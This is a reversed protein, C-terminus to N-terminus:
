ARHRGIVVITIDDAPPVGGRFDAVADRLAAVIDHASGRRATEITALLRPEGFREGSPGVADTVGDTYLVLSDGPRLRVNLEPAGLSRFAGLLVGGGEVADIPGDDGPVILPPEHGANALRLRGTTVDLVGAIATIFLGSRIEDVLIRNTRELAEAPGPSAELAAHIVPRAFAMLMGAGIGKGTVDAIVIGVPRRRRQVQFLEFFDGGIERAAEYHSALDYGPVVPGRLSVFSRQALRAQALESALSRYDAEALEGLGAALADLASVITPDDIAPGSAVVRGVLGGACHIDLVLRDNPAVGDGTSVADGSSRAIPDGASDVVAVQLRDAATAFSALIREVRAPDLAAGPDTM